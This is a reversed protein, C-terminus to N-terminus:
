EDVDMRHLRRVADDWVYVSEPTASFAHPAIGKAIVSSKSKTFRYLTGGRDPLLRLPPRKSQRLLVPDAAVLFLDEGAFLGDIPTEGTQLTTGDGM